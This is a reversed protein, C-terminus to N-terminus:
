GGLLDLGGTWGLQQFYPPHRPSDEYDPLNNRNDCRATMITSQSVVDAQDEISARIMNGEFPSSLGM